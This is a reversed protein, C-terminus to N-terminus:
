APVGAGSARPVNMPWRMCYAAEDAGVRLLRRAGTKRKPETCRAILNHLVRM